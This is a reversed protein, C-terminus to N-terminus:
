SFRFVVEFGVEADVDVGERGVLGALPALCKSDAGQGIAGAPDYYFHLLGEAVRGGGATPPRLWLVDLM